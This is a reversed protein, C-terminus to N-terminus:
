QVIPRPDPPIENAIVLRIAWEGCWMQNQVSPWYSTVQDPGTPFPSPPLRRCYGRGAELPQFFKCSECTNLKM